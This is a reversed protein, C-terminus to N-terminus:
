LNDFHAYAAPPRYSHAYSGGIKSYKAGDERQKYWFWAGAAAACLLLVGTVTGFGFGGTNQTPVKNACLISNADGSELKGCCLSKKADSWENEWNYNGSECDEPTTQMQEARPSNPCGVRDNACCLTKKEDSWDREWNTEDDHCYFSEATVCGVREHECCWSKKADAWAAEWNGLAAQCDFPKEESAEFAASAEGPM